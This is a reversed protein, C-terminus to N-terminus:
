LAGFGGSIMRAYEQAEAKAEEPSKWEGIGHERWAQIALRRTQEQRKLADNIRQRATELRHPRLHIM